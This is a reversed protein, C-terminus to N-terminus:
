KRVFGDGHKHGRLVWEPETTNLGDKLVFWFSCCCQSSLFDFWFLRNRTTNIICKKGDVSYINISTSIRRSPHIRYACKCWFCFWLIQLNNMSCSEKFVALWKWIRVTWCKTVLSSRLWFNQPVRIHKRFDNVCNPRLRSWISFLLGLVFKRLLQCTSEYNPVFWM